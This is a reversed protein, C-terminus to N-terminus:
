LVVLEGELVLEGEVALQRYALLQYDVPVTLSAGAAIRNRGLLYDAGPALAARAAAEEALAEEVTFGAYNGALDLIRVQRATVEHPNDKDALHAALGSSGGGAVVVAPGANGGGSGARLRRLEAELARFRLEIARASGDGPYRSM